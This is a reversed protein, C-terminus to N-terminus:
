GIFYFNEIYRERTTTCLVMLKSYRSAANKLPRVFNEHCAKNFMCTAIYLLNYLFDNNNQM